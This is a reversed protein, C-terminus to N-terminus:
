SAKGPNSKFYLSLKKANTHCAALPTNLATVGAAVCRKLNSYKVSTKGNCRSLSPSPISVLVEDKSFPTHVWGVLEQKCLRSSYFCQFPALSEFM